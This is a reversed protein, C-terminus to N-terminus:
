KGFVAWTYTAASSTGIEQQVAMKVNSAPWMRYVSVTNTVTDGTVVGNTVLNEIVTRTVSKEPWLVENGGAAITGSQAIQTEVGAEVVYFTVVANTASGNLVTIREVEAYPSGGLTDLRATDTANSVGAAMTVTKVQCYSGAFAEGVIGATVVIAVMMVASLKKM